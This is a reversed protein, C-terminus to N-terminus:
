HLDPSRAQNAPGDFEVLDVHGFDGVGRVSWGSSALRREFWKEWGTAGQGAGYVFFRGSPVLATRMVTSAYDEAAPSIAFPFPYPRGHIPYVALPAYLFSPLPYNPYWAPSQGEMFPSVCVVPTELQQVRADVARAAGRWDYNFDRPAVRNWQGMFILVGIGLVASLAAWRQAPVFRAAFATGAIAAGPLMLSYYRPVFLSHGTAHSFVFLAVPPALWWALALACSSRSIEWEARRWPLFLAVIVVVAAILAAPEIARLLDWVGPMGVIVHTKAQSQLAIAEPAAPLLTLALAAFVIAASPWRVPTDRAVLRAAAYLVLVPYFPWYVLQVRWLLAGALVFLLAEGWSGSDLWRVLFWVSAVGVLMGLAYPRADDAQIDFNRMALCAFVVFWAAPPHILRSALRFILFLAVIMALTSPLRYVPESFGGLKEAIWPLVFYISEAVQPAVSLSPDGAGRHVVFVTGTEDTWFSEGLPMLWVRAICLALLLWLFLDAHRPGHTM